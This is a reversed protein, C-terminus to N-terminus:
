TRWAADPRPEFRGLALDLAHVMAAVGVVPLLLNLLPVYAALAMAAGQALVMPRCAVYLSEAAHRPMRRMAVAVFLGRGIAYAAIAWALVLGIGPLLLALILALVNMLLIRIGVAIGDWVQHTMPAGQPPPLAPYWRREVAAAIRDFYLTGIVAAVPIFLWLSLAWTAATGLLDLLWALPGHMNLLEHVAFIAAAHLAAFFLVAWLLSRLVVGLLVPDELQGIARALPLFLNMAGSIGPAIM